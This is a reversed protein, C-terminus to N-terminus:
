FSMANDDDGLDMQEGGSAPQNQQSQEQAILEAFIDEYDEDSPAPSHVPRSQEQEYSALMAEIEDDDNPPSDVMMDDDEPTPEEHFAMADEIDAESVEPADHVLQGM